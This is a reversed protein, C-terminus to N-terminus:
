ALLIGRFCCLDPSYRMLPAGIISSGSGCPKIALVVDVVVAVAGALDADVPHRGVHLHDVGVDAVLDDGPPVEGVARVVVVRAPVGCLM